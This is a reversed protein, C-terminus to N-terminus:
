DSRYVPGGRGSAPKLIGLHSRDGGGLKLDAQQVSSALRTLRPNFRQAVPDVSKDIYSQTSGSGPTSLHM